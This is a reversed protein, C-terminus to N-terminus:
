AAVCVLCNGGTDLEAGCDECYDPQFVGEDFGDFLQDELMDLHRPVTSTMDVFPLARRARRVMRRGKGDERGILEPLQEIVKLLRFLLYEVGQGDWVKAAAAFREGDSAVQGFLHPFPSELFKEWAKIEVEDGQYRVLDNVLVFAEFWSLDSEENSKSM